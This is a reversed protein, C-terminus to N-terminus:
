TAKSRTFPQSASNKGPFSCTSVQETEVSSFRETESGSFSGSTFPALSAKVSLRRVLVERTRRRRRAGSSRTASCITPRWDRVGTSTTHSSPTESRARASFTCSRSSLMSM